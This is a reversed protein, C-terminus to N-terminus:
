IQTRAEVSGLLSPRHFATYPAVPFKHLLCITKQDHQSGGSPIDTVGFFSFCHFFSPSFCVVLKDIKCLGSSCGLWEPYSCVHQYTGRGSFLLKPVSALPVLVPLQFYCRRSTAVAVAETLAWCKAFHASFPCWLDDTASLAMCTLQPWSNASKNNLPILQVCISFPLFLHLQLFYVVKLGKGCTINPM